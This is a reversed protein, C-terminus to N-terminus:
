RGFFVLAANDDRENKNTDRLALTLGTPTESAWGPM